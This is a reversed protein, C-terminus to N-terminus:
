RVAMECESETWKTLVILKAAKRGGILQRHRAHAVVVQVGHCLAARALLVGRHGDKPARQRGGFGRALGGLRVRQGHDRGKRRRFFCLVVVFVVVNFLFLRPVQRADQRHVVDLVAGDLARAIPARERRRADPDRSVRRGGLPVRAEVALGLVKAPPRGDVLERHRAEGLVVHVKERALARPVLPDGHRGEHGRTGGAAAATSAAGLRVRRRRRVAKDSGQGTSERLVVHVVVVHVDFFAAGRQWRLCRGRRLRQRALLGQRHVLLPLLRGDGHSALVRADHDALGLGLLEDEGHELVREPGHVDGVNVLHTSRDM